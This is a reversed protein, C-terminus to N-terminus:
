SPTGPVPADTRNSAGDGGRDDRRGRDGGRGGRRRARMAEVEKATVFGDGDADIRKFMEAPGSFESPSLRGDGDADMRDMMGAGGGGRPGRGAGQGGRRGGMPRGADRDEIWELLYIQTVPKCWGETDHCAFYRVTVKLPETIDIGALGVLFERPDLDAEVKVKPGLATPKDAEVGDPLEISYGMPEALNNWHVHYIPDLHFGLKLKGTGKKMLDGDAEARLKVYFPAKSNQPAVKLARLGAPSEVRPVVGRAAKSERRPDVKLNLQDVTTPPDVPGHLKALSARLKDADSWSWAEILKGKADFLFQSNPRNGMAHKFANDMGDSIWPIQTGLTREAESVHALRETITFPQVYGDKEPHALAKYVYFFQVGKKTYDRHVAEM